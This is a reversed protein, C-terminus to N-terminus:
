RTNTTLRALNTHPASVVPFPLRTRLTVIPSISWGNVLRRLIASEGRYYNLQCSASVVLMHPVANDATRKETTLNTYDQPVQGTATPNTTNNQLEVSELTKSFTYFANFLLHNGMRKEATIQLGHYSATQNSQVLLIQGFPSSTVGLNPNNVPRRQIVNGSTPIVGPVNLIPYNVDRAFPLAHSLTGVYAFTMSLTKTIQRQVSLNLQYTYPWQFNPAVGEISAGPGCSGNYPFPNGGTIWQSTNTLTAGGAPKGQPSLTYNMGVNTFGLRM